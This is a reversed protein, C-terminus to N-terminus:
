ITQKSTRNVEIQFSELLVIVMAEKHFSNDRVQNDTIISAFYEAGKILGFQNSM